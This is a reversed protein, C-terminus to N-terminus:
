TGYYLQPLAAANLGDLIHSARHSVVLPRTRAFLGTGHNVLSARTHMAACRRL